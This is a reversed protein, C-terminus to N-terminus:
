PKLLNKIIQSFRTCVYAIVAGTFNLISDDVDGIGTSTKWQIFEIAAAFFAFFPFAIWFKRMKGFLTPIFYGLPMTILVNGLLNYFSVFNGTQKYHSVYNDITQFPIVQFEGQYTRYIQFLGGAFLLMYLIYLYYIFLVWKGGHLIKLKDKGKANIATFFSTAYILFITLALFMLQTGMSLADKHYIWYFNLFICCGSTLFPTLSNTM